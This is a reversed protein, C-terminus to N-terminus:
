SEKMSTRLLDREIIMDKWSALEDVNWNVWVFRGNLFAAKESAAWVVFDATLKVDTLPRQLRSKTLMASRVAGPHLSIIRAELAPVDDTIIEALRLVAAKSAGYGSLGTMHTEYAARTNVNIIVGPAEVRRARRHRLYMQTMIATGFVNTEFAQWWDELDAEVFGGPEPLYGANNVLVDPSIEIAAFIAAVQDPSSVSAVYYSVELEPFDTRLGTSTEVLTSETRGTLIIKAVNAEAFSRTMTTGIGSGGGTLLVTKGRFEDRLLTPSVGSYTEFHESKIFSAM